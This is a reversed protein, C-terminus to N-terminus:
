NRNEDDYFPSEKEYGFFDFLTKTCRIQKVKIHSPIQIGLYWRPTQIIERSTVTPSIM